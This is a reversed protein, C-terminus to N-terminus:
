TVTEERETFCPKEDAQVKACNVQALTKRGRVAQQIPDTDAQLVDDTLDQRAAPRM